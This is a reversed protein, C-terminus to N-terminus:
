QAPISRLVAKLIDEKTTGQQPLSVVYRKDNLQSQRFFYREEKVTIYFSHKRMAEPVDDILFAVVYEQLPSEEIQHSALDQFQKAVVEDTESAQQHLQKEVERQEKRQAEIEKVTTPIDKNNMSEEQGKENDAEESQTPSSKSPQEDKEIQVAQGVQNEESTSHEEEGGCGTLILMATLVSVIFLQRM